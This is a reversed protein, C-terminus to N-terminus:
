HVFIFAESSGSSYERTHQHPGEASFLVHVTYGDTKNFLCLTIYPMLRSAATPLSLIDPNCKYM